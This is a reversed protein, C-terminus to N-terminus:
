EAEIITPAEEIAPLVNEFRGNLMRISIHKYLEDADILRGHPSTIEKVSCKSCLDGIEGSPVHGLPCLKCFDYKKIGKIYLSM